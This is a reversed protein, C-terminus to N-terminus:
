ELENRRMGQLNEKAQKPYDGTPPQM